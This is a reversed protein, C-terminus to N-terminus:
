VYYSPISFHAALWDIIYNGQVDEFVYPCELVPYPRVGGVMEQSLQCVASNSADRRLIKAWVDDMANYAYRVEYENFIEKKAQEDYMTQRKILPLM